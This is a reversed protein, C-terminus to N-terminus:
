HDADDALLGTENQPHASTYADDPANESPQLLAEHNEGPEAVKEEMQHQSALHCELHDSHHLKITKVPSEVSPQM